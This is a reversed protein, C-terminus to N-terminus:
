AGEQADYYARISSSFPGIPESDLLCGDFGAAWYWGPSLETASDYDDLWFVNFSGFREGKENEFQHYGSKSDFVRAEEIRVTGILM